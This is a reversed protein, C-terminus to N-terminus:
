GRQNKRASSYGGVYETGGYGGNYGRDHNNKKDRRKQISDLVASYYQSVRPLTAQMKQATTIVKEDDPRANLKIADCAQDIIACAAELEDKDIRTISMRKGCDRCKWLDQNKRDKENTKFISFENGQKHTCKCQLNHRKGRMDKELGALNETEKRIKKSMM